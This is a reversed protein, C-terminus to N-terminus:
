ISLVYGSKITNWFVDEYSAFCFCNNQVLLYGFIVQTSATTFPKGTAGPNLPNVKHTRQEEWPPM